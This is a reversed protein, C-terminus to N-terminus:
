FWLLQWWFWNQFWLIQELLCVWACNDSFKKPKAFGSKTPLILEHYV